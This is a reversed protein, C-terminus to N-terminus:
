FLKLRDIWRCHKEFLNRILQKHKLCLYITYVILQDSGNEHSPRYRSMYPRASRPSGATRPSSRSCTSTRWRGPGLQDVSPTLWFLNVAHKSPFLFFFVPPILIIKLSFFLVLKLLIDKRLFNENWERINNVYEQINWFMRLVKKFHYENVRKRLNELKKRTLIEGSTSDVSFFESSERLSYVIQSNPGLDDLDHAIVRGIVAISSTSSPVTFVYDEEEFEPSNDNVDQVSIGVTTEARWAGDTAVVQHSSLLLIYSIYFFWVM